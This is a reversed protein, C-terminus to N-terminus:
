WKKVHVYPIKAGPHGTDQWTSGWIAYQVGGLQVGYKKCHGKMSSCKTTHPIIKKWHFCSPLSTGKNQGRVNCGGIQIWMYFDCRLCSTGRDWVGLINCVGVCGYQVGWIQILIDIADWALCRGTGCGGYQVGMNCGRYQVGWIKLYFHLSQFLNATIKWWNKFVYTAGWIADGYQVGMNCGWNCGAM